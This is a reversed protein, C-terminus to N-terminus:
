LQNITRFLQRSWYNPDYEEKMETYANKGLETRIDHNLILREIQEEWEEPETVRIINKCDRFPVVDSAITPIRLSSYDLWRLNSKGRSLLSDKLPALGISLGLSALYEPYKLMEVWKIQQDVKIFPQMPGLIKIKFKHRQRLKELVPEVMMWDKQHSGSGAFGITVGDQKNPFKFFETDVCNKIVIINKNLSEYKKKLYETSVVLLDAQTIAFQTYEALRLSPNNFAAYAPNDPETHTSLLDDDLDIVLKCKGREKMALILALYERDNPLTTFIVDAWKEEAAFYEIFEKSTFHQNHQGYFPLHHVNALKQKAIFRLPQVIRYYFVGSDQNSIGFVKSKKLNGM